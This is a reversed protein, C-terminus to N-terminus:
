AVRETRSFRTRTGAKIRVLVPIRVGLLSDLGTVLQEVAAGVDGPSAGKRAQVTIKLGRAGATAKTKWAQVSSALVQPNEALAAKVAQAAVAADVTTSGSREQTEALQKSRGTGQSAIWVVLLVLFLVLVAIGALTWWSTNTGPIQAAALNDQGWAWATTGAHTWDRAVVASSGAWAAM